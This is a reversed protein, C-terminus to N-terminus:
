PSSSRIAAHRRLNCGDLVAQGSTVAVPKTGWSSLVENLIFLNTANDDVILIPLGDLRSMAADVRGRAKLCEAQLGFTSTFWFTTGVGPTSEVWIRGGMMEVLKSSIALGLGTGGFRRTTSGDVQEFPEFITRKKDAPIGIGTDTIGFRLVVTEGRTNELAVNVIVEGQETFKIANGVLNMLVQRLRDDDGIM